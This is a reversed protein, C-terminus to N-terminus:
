RVKPSPAPLFRRKPKSNDQYQGMYLIGLALAVPAVLNVALIRLTLRSTRRPKKDKVTKYAPKPKSIINHLPSHTVRDEQPPLSATASPDPENRKINTDSM